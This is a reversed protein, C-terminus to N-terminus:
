LAECLASALAKGDLRGWGIEREEAGDAPREGDGILTVVPIRYRHLAFDRPDDRIDVKEISLGHRKALPELLAMGEDCLPCDPKTYFLLRPMRDPGSVSM